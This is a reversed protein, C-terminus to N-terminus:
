RLLATRRAPHPEGEELIVVEVRRNQQRGAETDNPALPFEQGYGHAVIRTPEVGQMILFDQVANARRESLTLNYGPDGVSDTHGEILVSHAPSAQLVEALRALRQMGGPTLEDSDFEFLVDGLTLELGRATQIAELEALEQRLAELESEAREARRETLMLDRERAELQISEREASLREIEERAAGEAAVARATHARQEALYALHEIEGGGAQRRWAAEARELEQRARAVEAPALRQVEPQAQVSAVTERAAELSPNPGRGCGALAVAVLILGATATPWARARCGTSVM